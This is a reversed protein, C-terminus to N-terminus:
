FKDENSYSDELGILYQQGFLTVSLLLTELM